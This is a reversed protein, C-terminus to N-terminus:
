PALARYLSLGNVLASAILDSPESAFETKLQRTVAAHDAGDALLDLPKRNRKLVFVRM